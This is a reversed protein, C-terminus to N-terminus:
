APKGLRTWDCKEDLDCYTRLLSIFEHRPMESAGLSQLHSSYIQCDILRFGHAELLRVLHVLAVKSADRKRSFMSEGFYVKGIVVGYLGGVLENQDWCEVSLIHGLNYLATYAKIMEESIWTDAFGARPEACLRIVQDFAENFTVRYLGKRLTKNLSTSIHMAEPKLVCRPDPSWWLVPQGRNFWPFIGSQYAHLLRDPKLDGGIALLGEPDRLAKEVNPFGDASINDAIWYIKTDTRDSIDGRPM